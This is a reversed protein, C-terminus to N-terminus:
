VADIQRYRRDANQAFSGVDDELLDQRAAVDDGAPDGVRQRHARGHPGVIQKIIGPHRRLGATREVGIEVGDQQREAHCRHLHPHCAAPKGAQEVIEGLGVREGYQGVADHMHQAFAVPDGGQGDADRMQLTREADHAHHRSGGRRHDVCKRVEDRSFEVGQLAVHFLGLVHGAPRGLSVALQNADFFGRGRRSLTALYFAVLVAFSSNAHKRFGEHSDDTALLVGSRDFAGNLQAFSGVAMQRDGHDTDREGRTRGGIAGNGGVGPSLLALFAFLGRGPLFFDNLLHEGLGADRAIDAGIVAVLSLHGRNDARARAIGIEPEDVMWRVKIATDGVPGALAEDILAGLREEDHRFVHRRCQRWLLNDDPGNVSEECTVWTGWPTPGGACNFTTGNLSVWDRLLERTKPDVSLTTTGGIVNRDYANAKSGPFPRVGAAASEREEHNRVVRITGDSGWFAAMGDSRGPTANGDSMIDGTVGVSRYVWGAPLALRVVGDTQDPTDVLPGRGDHTCSMDAGAEAAAARLGLAQVAGGMAFVGAGGAIFKRRDM